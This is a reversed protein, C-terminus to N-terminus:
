YKSDPNRAPRPSRAQTVIVEAETAIMDVPVDHPGAPVAPVIQIAFAVGITAAHPVKLLFRDYYGGGYGVRYGRRDFAVAPVLVADIEAPLVPKLRDARPARIGYHGPELEAFTDICCAELERCEPRCFPVLIRKGAAWGRRILDDVYVESGFSLYVMLTGAREVEPLSAVREMIARSRAESERASLADRLTLIRKRIDGKNDM